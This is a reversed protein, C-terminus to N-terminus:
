SAGRRSGRARRGCPGPAAARAPSRRRACPARDFARRAIGPREVPQASARRHAARDPRLEAVAAPVELVPRDVADDEGFALAAGGGLADIAGPQAKAAHELLQDGLQRQQAEVQRRRGARRGRGGARDRPAHDRGAPRMGAAAAEDRRHRRHGAADGLLQDAGEGLRPDTAGVDVVAAVDGEMERRARRELDAEEGVRRVAEGAQREVAAERDVGSRRHAADGGRAPAPAAEREADGVRHRHQRRACRAGVGGRGDDGVRDVDVIRADDAAGGVRHAVVAVEALAEDGAGHRASGSASTACASSRRGGRRPARSRRRVCRRRAARGAPGPRPRRRSREEM